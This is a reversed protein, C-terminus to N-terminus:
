AEVQEAAKIAENVCSRNLEELTPVGFLECIERESRGSRALAKKIVSVMGATIPQGAASKDGQPKNDAGKDGQPKNDAISETAQPKKEAVEGTEPDVDAVDGEAPKKLVPKKVLREPTSDGDGNIITEAADDITRGVMEEATPQAGVAEPFARRLAMAEACKELQGRKRKLWMSNPANSKGVTAYSEEWYIRGSTFACKEGQVMRYVTVECWEPIKITIPQLKRGNDEPTYTFDVMEGWTAPAIGAYERTRAADTRTDGVGAMLVDKMARAKKDWMPVIHVPKKLPDKEQAKCWGIVLKISADTAGPYLSSRLVSMLEEQDMRLAPPLHRDAGAAVAPLDKANSM